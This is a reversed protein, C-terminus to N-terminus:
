VFQETLSPNASPVVIRFLTEILIFSSKKANHHLFEGFILVLCFLFVTGCYNCATGMGNGGGFFPNRALTLCVALGLFREPKGACNSESKEFNQWMM